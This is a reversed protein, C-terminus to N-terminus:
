LDEVLYHLLQILHVLQCFQGTNRTGFDVLGDVRIVKTFDIPISPVQGTDFLFNLQDLTPLIKQDARGLKFL